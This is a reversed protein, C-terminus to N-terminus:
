KSQNQLSNDNTGKENKQSYLKMVTNLEEESMELAFKDYLPNEIKSEGIRARWDNLTIVGSIFEEKCRKSLVAKSEQEEKYGKKLVDIDSFDIDIYLGSNELGLFETIEKAFQRAEPIVVNVYAKAENEEQNSFTGHDKRPILESPIEYAGAILCGDILAEEFPELESISMSMKIFDLPTNSIGVPSKDSTLGHTNNYEDRIAKKEDPTLPISGTEDVKKSVLMGLAGRKTYIINRAQYVAILNSIPKKQSILRSVGKLPNNSDIDLEKSHMIFKPDIHEITGGFLLDYSNIMESITNTSYMPIFTPTNVSVKPSPLVWYNSCWKWIENSAIDSSMAAKIYSNGLLKKYFIHLVLLQEFSQLPNPRSLFKNVEKNDYVVSDDKTRKLLFKGATIRNLIFNIPFAVEPISKYLEILNDGCYTGTLVQELEELTIKRRSIPDDNSISAPLTEKVEKNIFKNFWKM